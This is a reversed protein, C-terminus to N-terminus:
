QFFEEEDISSSSMIVDQGVAIKQKGVGININGLSAYDALNLLNENQFNKITEKLLEIEVARPLGFFDRIVSKGLRGTVHGHAKNKNKDDIFEITVYHRDMGAVVMSALMEGTLKMNVKSSKAYIKFVLSEAYEKSYGKFPNGNRDIGQLTREQIKDIVKKGFASKFDERSILPRVNDRAPSNGLAANFVELLNIRYQPSYVTAM